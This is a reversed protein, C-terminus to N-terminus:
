YLVEALFTQSVLALLIENWRLVGGASWYDIARRQASTLRSQSNKIANLESQYDFSTVSTPPAVAFQTPGTLAIMRWSGAGADLSAQSQTLGSSAPLLAMLGALVWTCVTRRRVIM